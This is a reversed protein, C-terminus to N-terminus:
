RGARLRLFTIDGKKSAGDYMQPRDVRGEIRLELFQFYRTVNGRKVNCKQQEGPQM